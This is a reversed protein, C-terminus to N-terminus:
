VDVGVTGIAGRPTDLGVHDGGQAIDEESINSEYVGVGVFPRFTTDPQGFHYQGSLAIPQQEITGIKGEPGRVRHNFRDAAGWLEVGWNNDVHWTASLTPAPGGDVDIGEAPDRHPQLPTVGGVVSVRKDGYDTDQAQQAFAAPSAALALASAIVLKNPLSNMHPLGRKNHTTSRAQ